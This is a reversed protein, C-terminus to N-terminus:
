SALPKAKIPQSLYHRIVQRALTSPKTEEVKARDKLSQIEEPSLRFYYVNM